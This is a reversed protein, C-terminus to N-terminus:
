LRSEDIYNETVTVTLGSAYLAWLSFILLGYLDIIATSKIELIRIQFQSLDPMMTKLM